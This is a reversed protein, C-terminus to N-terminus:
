AHGQPTLSIQHRSRRAYEYIARAEEFLPNTIRATSLQKSRNLAHSVGLMRILELDDDTADAYLSLDLLVNGKRLTKSLVHLFRAQLLFNTELHAMWYRNTLQDADRNFQVWQTYADCRFPLILANAEDWKDEYGNMNGSFERYV